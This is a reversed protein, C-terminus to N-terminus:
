NASEVESVNEIVTGHGNSSSEDNEYKKVLSDIKIQLSSIKEAKESGDLTTDNEILDKEVLYAYLLLEDDSLQMAINEANEYDKRGIYIWYEYEKDSSLMTIRSLINDKQENTLGESQIYSRALVYKHHKDLDEIEAEQLAKIVGAIDNEIYANDAAIVAEYYPEKHLVNYTFYAGLGVVVIALVAIAIKMFLYTRKNVSAYNKAQVDSQEDRFKMLYDVLEETSKMDNFSATLSSKKYLAFGGERYDSYKYQGTLACACLAKYDEFFEEKNRVDFGVRIDRDKVYVRGISNYFLNGPEISFKYKIYDLELFSISILINYIFFKDEKLIQSFPIKNEVDYTLTIDEGEEEWEMSLFNDGALSLKYFDYGDKAAFTSKKRQEVLVKTQEEM